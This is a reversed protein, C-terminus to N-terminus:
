SAEARHRERRLAELTRVYPGFRRLRPPLQALAGLAEERGGFPGFVLGLRPAQATGQPVLYLTEPALSRAADALYSELYAHAHADTVMLQVAYRSALANAALLDRGAALRHEVPDPPAIRSATVVERAEPATIDGGSPSGDAVFPALAVGLAVGAAAGLGAVGVIRRSPSPRRTAALQSDRVAARAHEATITHTGAAFAAMLTKDALANIRRTLGGSADAILRLAAAGFLDPGRYGAARLRCHLYDGVDRAPLPALSFAHTIRDRVQRMGPLALHADLEPQGFLVLQLLKDKGTELNSLLRLEELTSLPMAHAEDILAVVSRGQGHIRILRGHLARVLQLTNAGATDIGIDGAIAALMEDRALTPVALYITEVTRPLREMLMRCLMTKGSGVEGTVKVMGEGAAIAYTLAELTAGRDAGSFFFETHPTMRFPAERLGFHRLYMTM